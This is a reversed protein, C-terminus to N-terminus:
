LVPEMRMANSKIITYGPGGLGIIAPAGTRWTHLYTMEVGIHDVSTSGACGGAVNCRTTEAYGASGVLEYTLTFSTSGVVCPLSGTRAYTNVKGAVVGGSANAKYIRVQSIQARDAPATVRDEIMKLIVCDAGATNGAEAAVLSAERTAYNASLVANLAFGFEILGILLAFFIPITLAFEVLSQGRRHARLRSEGRRSFATHLLRAPM